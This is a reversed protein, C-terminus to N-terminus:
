WWEKLALMIVLLITEQVEALAGYTDGTCGGLSIKLQRSFWFLFAAALAQILLGGPGAVLWAIAAAVTTALWFRSRSAYRSFGRGLGETRVYPLFVIAGAMAWRALVPPLILIEQAAEVPLSALVGFKVLLLIVAGIVGMAGVRSDRMIELKRERPRGSGLGDLTDMLGDLHLGGTLWTSVALLVAGLVLPPLVPRLLQFIGYDILGLVLGALPFWATSRGLAEEQGPAGSKVPLRTLFGIATVLATFERAFFRM